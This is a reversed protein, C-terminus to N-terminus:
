NSCYLVSNLFTFSFSYEIIDCFRFCMEGTIVTLDTLPKAHKKGRSQLNRNNVGQFFVVLGKERNTPQLFPCGRLKFAVIGTIAISHMTTVQNSLTTHLFVLFQCLARLRVRNFMTACYTCLHTCIVFQLHPMHEIIQDCKVM